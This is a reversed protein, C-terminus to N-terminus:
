LKNPQLQALRRSDDCGSQHETQQARGPPPPLILPMGTSVEIGVSNSERSKWTAGAKLWTKRGYGTGEVLMVRYDPKRGAM